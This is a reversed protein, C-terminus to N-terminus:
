ERIVLGLEAALANLPPDANAARDAAAMLAEQGRDYALEIGWSEALAIVSSATTAAAEKETASSGECAETVWRLLQAELHSRAVDHRLTCGYRVAEEALARADAYAPHETMRAGPALEGTMYSFEEDFSNALALSASARLEPPVPLNADCLDAILERADRSVAEYQGPSRDRADALIMRSVAERAGELLDGLGFEETGLEEQAARVITMESETSFAADLRKVCAPWDGDPVDELPRVLARLATGGFSFACAAFHATEGTARSTLEVQTTVFLLLGRRTKACDILRYHHSNLEGSSRAGEMSPAPLQTLAVHAALGASTVRRPLAHTRYLDAGSGMADINSKAEGLAAVFESEFPKGGLADLQDLLRGAYRLLQLTEIGSLDNFFWGCSTYMVMASRQSELLQLAREVKDSGLARGGAREFFAKRDANQDLVLEIYADRVAWPDDVLEGMASTYLDSAHQRLLDLSERLPKRWAQTWDAEGGTRCGCDRFWRGVGHACSWSTGLGDDGEKIQVEMTPPHHDLLEGYNTVWFGRERAEHTLAYALCRDGFKFHHGYSEGDTVAHVLSGSGASAREFRDVLGSSSALSGEFAVSRSVAGDYFFLAISRGSGDPHVYHYPRRPDISGDSVDQWGVSASGARQSKQAANDGRIPRVRAAQGPALLAYRMGADILASLTRHDCATEPMWLSEPDRRYRSRFEAVGWRVQTQIDRDNCLPLIAHNYGQAIANGHGGHERASQQDAEGIRRLTAPHHRELWTTLTPGFNFSMSAYNNVISSVRGRSDVIRAWANPRYCEDHIRQNWDHAPAASPEREVQETWPNERPPQYFHGHIILAPPHVM